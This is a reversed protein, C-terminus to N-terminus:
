DDGVEGLMRFCERFEAIIGLLEDVGALFKEADDARESVDPADARNGGINVSGGNRFFPADGESPGGRIFIGGNKFIRLVNLEGPFRIRVESETEARVKTKSSSMRPEDQSGQEPFKGLADRRHSNEGLFFVDLLLSVVGATDAVLRELNAERWCLFVVTRRSRRRLRDRSTIVCM